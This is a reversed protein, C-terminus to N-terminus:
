DCLETQCGDQCVILSKHGRREMKRGSGSQGRGKARGKFMAFSIECTRVIGKFCAMLKNKGTLGM